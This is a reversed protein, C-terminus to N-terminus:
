VNKPAPSVFKTTPPTVMVVGPAPVAGSIVLALSTMVTALLSVMLPTSTVAVPGVAPPMETPLATVPVVVILVTSTVKLLAAFPNSMLPGDFALLTDQVFPLMLASFAD